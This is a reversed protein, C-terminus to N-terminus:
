YFRLFYFVGIIKNDQHAELFVNGPKGFDSEMEELEEDKDWDFVPSNKYWYYDKMYEKWVSEYISWDESEVIKVLYWELARLIKYSELSM